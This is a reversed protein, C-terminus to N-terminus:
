KGTQSMRLKSLEFLHMIVLCEVEDLAEHYKSLTAEEKYHMYEEGGVEWPLKLGLQGQLHAALAEANQLKAYVLDVQICAQNIAAAMMNLDGEIVLSLARNAAEHATNHVYCIKLIDQPPPHKLASFYSHKLAEYKDANWFAFHEEISFVHECGKGESKCVMM